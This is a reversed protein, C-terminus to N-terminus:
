SFITLTIGKRFFLAGRPRITMPPPTTTSCKASTPKLPQHPLACLLLKLSFYHSIFHFLNLTQFKKRGNDANERERERWGDSVLISNAKAEQIQQPINKTRLVQIFVSFFPSHFNMGLWCGVLWFRSSIISGHEEEGLPTDVACM